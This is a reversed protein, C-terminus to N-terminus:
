ADQQRCTKLREVGAHTQNSILCMDTHRQAAGSAWGSPQKRVFRRPNIEGPGLVSCSQMLYCQTRKQHVPLTRQMAQLDKRAQNEKDAWAFLTEDDPVM